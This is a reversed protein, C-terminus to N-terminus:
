MDHDIRYKWRRLVNYTADRARLIDDFHYYKVGHISYVMEYDDGDNIIYNNGGFVNVAVTAIGGPTVDIRYYENHGYIDQVPHLAIGLSVFFKDKDLGSVYWDLLCIEDYVNKMNALTILTEYARLDTTDPLIMGMPTFLNTNGHWSLGDQWPRMFIDAIVHNGYAIDEIQYDKFGIDRAWQFTGFKTGNYVSMEGSGVNTSNGRGIHVNHKWMGNVDKNNVPNNDCYAFMNTGLVGTKTDFVSDANLFRGWEPNYFRSKLYYMDVDEDWMYGRYTLPNLAARPDNIISSKPATPKTFFGSIKSFLTDFFGPKQQTQQTEEEEIYASIIAETNEIYLTLIAELLEELDIELELLGIESRLEFIVDAYYLAPLAVAVLSLAFFLGALGELEPMEIGYEELLGEFDELLLLIDDASLTLMKELFLPYIDAGITQSLSAMNGLWSVMIGAVEIFEDPDPDGLDLQELEEPEMFMELLALLYGLLKPAIKAPDLIDKRLILELLADADEGELEFETLLQELLQAEYERAPDLEWPEPEEPEEEVENPLEDRGFADYTYCVIASGDLPDILSIIDGQPNKEYLLTEVAGFEDQIAIGFPEKAQDYLVRVVTGDGHLVAALRRDGTWAYRM